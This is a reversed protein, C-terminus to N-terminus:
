TGDLPDWDYGRRSFRVDSSGARLRFVQKCTPCELADTSRGFPQLIRKKGEDSCPQCLYHLPEGKPDNKKLALVVGGMPLTVLEYRQAEDYKAQATRLATETQYLADMLEFNAVQMKFLNENLTGLMDFVEGKIRADAMGGLKDRVKQAVALSDKAIGGAERGASLASLITALEVGFIQM